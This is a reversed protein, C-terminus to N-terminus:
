RVGDLVRLGFVGDREADGGLAVFGHDADCVGSAADVGLLYVLYEVTEVLGFPRLAPVPMPSASVFPM